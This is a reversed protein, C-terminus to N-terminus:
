RFCVFLCVFLFGQFTWKCVWGGANKTASSRVPFTAGADPSLIFPKDSKQGNDFAIRKESTALIRIDLGRSLLVGHKTRTLDGPAFQLQSSGAEEETGNSGNATLPKTPSSTRRNKRTPSKTPSSTRRNKRTPSKTPSSTRRNKKTPSKTPPFTKGQKPSKTPNLTPARTTPHSTPALTTPNMTPSMTPSMNPKIIPQMSPMKVPSVTPDKTASEEEDFVGSMKSDGADDNADFTDPDVSPDVGESFADENGKNNPVFSDPGAAVDIIAPILTPNMAPVLTPHETADVTESSYEPKGSEGHKINVLQGLLIWMLLVLLFALVWLLRKKFFLLRRVGVDAARKTVKASGVVTNNTTPLRPQLKDRKDLFCDDSIDSIYGLSNNLTTSCQSESTSVQPIKEAGPGSSDYEDEFADSDNESTSVQPLKVAAPGSSDYEDEFADSDNESTSMQPLKVAVPGSSDYEDEFADSDNESTSVQPFKEAGPGSSNYEDEDDAEPSCSAFILDFNEGLNHVKVVTTNMNQMDDGISYEERLSDKICVEEQIRTSLITTRPKSVAPSSLTACIDEEAGHCTSAEGERLDAVKEMLCSDGTARVSCPSKTTTKSKRKQPSRPASAVLLPPVPAPRPPPPPPLSLNDDDENFTEDDIFNGVTEEFSNAGAGFSGKLGEFQTVLLSTNGTLVSCTKDDKDDQVSKLPDEDPADSANMPSTFPTFGAGIEEM